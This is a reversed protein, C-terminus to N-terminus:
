RKRARRAAAAGLSGRTSTLRITQHQLPGVELKTLGLLRLLEGLIAQIPVPVDGCNLIVAGGRTTRVGEPAPAVRARTQKKAKKAM